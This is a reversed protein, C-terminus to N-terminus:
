ALTTIKTNEIDGREIKSVQRQSVGIKEALVAQSLGREKRLCALDFGSQRAKIYRQARRKSDPNVPRLKRLDETTVTM